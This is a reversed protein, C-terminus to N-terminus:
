MSEEVTWNEYLKQTTRAGFHLLEHTNNGGWRLSSFGNHPGRGPGDDEDRTFMGVRLAFISTLQAMFAPWMLLFPFIPHVYDKAVGTKRKRAKWQLEIGGFAAALPASYIGGNLPIIHSSLATSHVNEKAARTEAVVSQMQM